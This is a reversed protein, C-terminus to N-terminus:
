STARSPAASGTSSCSRTSACCRARPCARRQGAQPGITALVREHLGTPADVDTDRTSM